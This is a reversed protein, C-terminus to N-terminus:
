SLLHSNKDLASKDKQIKEVYDPLNFSGSNYIKMGDKIGLKKAISFPMCSFSSATFFSVESASAESLYV